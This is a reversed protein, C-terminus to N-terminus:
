CLYYISRTFFENPLVLPGALSLFLILDSENLFLKNGYNSSKIHISISPYLQVRKKKKEERSINVSFLVLIRSYPSLICKM